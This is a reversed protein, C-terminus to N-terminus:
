LISCYLSLRPVTGLQREDWCTCAFGGMMRILRRQPHSSDIPQRTLPPDKTPPVSKQLLAPSERLELLKRPNVHSHAGDM